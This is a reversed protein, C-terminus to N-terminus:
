FGMMEMELMMMDEAGGPRTRPQKFGGERRQTEMEKEEQLQRYAKIETSPWNSKGVAVQKLELGDHYLMTYYDSRKLRTNWGIERILDVLIMGSTFDIMQEESDNEMTLPTFNAVEDPGRTEEPVDEVEHGMIQGPYIDFEQTKWQGMYYKDIEVKVGEVEKTEDKKVLTEMPFVHLMKSIVVEDPFEMYDSWFVTQNKFEVDDKRFWDKGVIPNFVGMRVRYQYTQGPEVTDDHVWIPFPERITDLRTGEKLTYKEVDREVDQLTRERETKRAALREAAEREREARDPRGPRRGGGEMFGGRGRQDRGRSTSRRENERQAKRQDIMERKQKDDEKKMIDLTQILYKPPMWEAQSITFVYPEPQLLDFQVDEAQYQSIWVDIGYEMENTNLPLQELLEKYMDVKTRSVESWPSWDGNKLKRRRQLQTKAFVPTALRSDKWSSKLGPGNFSLQFNNYLEQFNFDGSVTVLDIDVLKSEVTSYPNGPNVEDVPVEATGRLVALQANALMPIVPVTYLREEEILVDGVGPYPVPLDASIDSISCQLDRTYNGVYDPLAKDYETAQSPLQLKNILQDAQEKIKKDINGPNVKTEGRSGIRVKQGNPNGIVYLWLLVLSILIMVGLIIKDIQNELISLFSKKKSM